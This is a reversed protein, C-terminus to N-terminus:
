ILLVESVFNSNQNLYYKFLFHQRYKKSSISILTTTAKTTITTAAAAATITQIPNLNLYTLPVPPEFISKNYM